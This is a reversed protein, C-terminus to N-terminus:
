AIWSTIRSWIRLQACDANQCPTRQDRQWRHQDAAYDLWAAWDQEDAAQPFRHTGNTYTAM